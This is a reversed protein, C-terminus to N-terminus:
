PWLSVYVWGRVRKHGPAVNLEGCAVTASISPWVSAGTSLRDRKHLPWVTVSIAVRDRKLRPANVKQTFNRICPTCLEDLVSTTLNKDLDLDPLPPLYLLCDDAPSIACTAEFHSYVQM